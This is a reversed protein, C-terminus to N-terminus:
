KCNEKFMVERNM